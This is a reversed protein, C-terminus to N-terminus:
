VPVMAAPLLELGCDRRLIVSDRSHTNARSSTLTGHAIHAGCVAGEAAPLWAASATACQSSQQVEACTADAAFDHQAVCVGAATLTM